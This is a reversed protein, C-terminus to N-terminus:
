GSGSSSATLRELTAAHFFMAAPYGTREFQRRLRAIASADGAVVSAILRRRKASGRKPFPARALWVRAASPDRRWAAEFFSAEVAVERSITTRPWRAHGCAYDIVRQLLAAANGVDESDLARYYLLLSADIADSNKEEASEARAVEVLATDWDRPRIANAMLRLAMLPMETPRPRRLRWLKHGDSSRGSPYQTPVLTLVGVVLSILSGVWWATLPRILWLGVVGCLLSTAPGGAVFWFFDRRFRDEGAWQMPAGLVAGGLVSLRLGFRVGGRTGRTAFVPGIFMTVVRFGRALAALAHGIEHVAVAVVWLGIMSGVFTLYGPWLHFSPRDKAIVYFLYTWIAIGFATAFLNGRRNVGLPPLGKPPYILPPIGTVSLPLM